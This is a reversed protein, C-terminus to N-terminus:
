TMKSTLTVKLGRCFFIDYVTFYIWKKINVYMWQLLGWAVTPVLLGWAVTPVHVSRQKLSIRPSEDLGHTDDRTRNEPTFNAAASCIHHVWIKVLCGYPM